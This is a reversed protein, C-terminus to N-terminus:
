KEENELKKIFDKLQQLEEPSSKKNGLAQMVLNLSSGQFAADLLNNLLQKQTKEKKIAVFYVHTKGERSRELLGKETMIQMIKLTTTYGVEKDKSLLDNVQRVTGKKLHWLVQLIELEKDTPKPIKGKKM